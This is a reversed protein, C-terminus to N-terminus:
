VVSWADVATESSCAAACGKRCGEQARASSASAPIGDSLTSGISGSGWTGTTSTPRVQGATRAFTEGVEINFALWAALKREDGYRRRKGPWTDLAWWLVGSDSYAEPPYGKKDRNKM